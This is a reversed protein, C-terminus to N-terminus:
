HGGHFGISPSGGQSDFMTASLTSVVICWQVVKMWQAQPVILQQTELHSNLSGTMM